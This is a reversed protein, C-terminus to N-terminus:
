SSATELHYFSKTTHGWSHCDACVFRHYWYTTFRRPGQFIINHSNCKRCVADANLAEPNGYLNLRPIWPIMKVFIQETAKVDQKNYEQMVWRLTMLDEGDPDTYPLWRLKDWLGTDHHLKGELGFHPAVEDLTHSMFGFQSRSTKILDIDQHPAPPNMNYEAMHSRLNGLDYRKSNWGVVFDADSIVDRAIKIMTEHGPYVELLGTHKYPTPQCVSGDNHPDWESSFNIKDEGFWKWAFCITRVPVIIQRPQIYGYQKLQWVSGVIASQREIDLTVIKPESM